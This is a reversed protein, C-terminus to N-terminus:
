VVNKIKYIQEKENFVTFLEGNARGVLKEKIGIALFGGNKIMQSFNNIIEKQVNRSYNLLKNRYIIGNMKKNFVADTEKYNVLITNKFLDTRPILKDARNILYKKPLEEGNVRKYNSLNQQHKREDYSFGLKTRDLLKHQHSYYVQIKDVLGMEERLILFSVLEAGRHCSPFFIRYPLSVNAKKIIEEKFIRWFAPDRFLEFGDSYLYSFLETRLEEKNVIRDKLINCNILGRKKCFQQLKIKFIVNNLNSLDMGMFNGLLKSIEKIDKIYLNCIPM